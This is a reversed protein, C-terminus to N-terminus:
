QERFINAAFFSITPRDMFFEAIDFEVGFAARMRTICLMASISDGGLDFLSEEVAVTSTQLVEAWITMLKLEIEQYSLRKVDTFIGEEKSVKHPQPELTSFPYILLGLLM